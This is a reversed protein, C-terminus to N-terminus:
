VSEDESETTPETVMGFLEEVSEAFVEKEGEGEGVFDEGDIYTARIMSEVEVQVEKKELHDLIDNKSSFAEGKLIYKRGTPTVKTIIGYMLALDFLQEELGSVGSTFDIFFEAKKYPKGLKNKEVKIRIKHGYKEENEDNLVNDSGTMPAVMLMVSCAHKFAAGGPTTEPNGYMVGIKTKVHNIAIFCVNAHAVAPTLKRLEVTLFRALPAMNMKGVASAVEQPAAMAAVSDLVIIGMKKLNLSVTRKNVVHKIVQGTRIMDLLGPIHTVKKTTKNEKPIGVLGELIAKAENTKILLVRDNDIGLSEAWDPDYTFEADIFACCNEPDKSQWEAMGILSMFTKGSSPKGAVQYIRGRGWGGVQLARDLAPSRTSFVEVKEVEEPHRAADGFLNNIHNWAQSESMEKAPTSRASKRKASM